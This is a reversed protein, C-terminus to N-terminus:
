RELNYRFKVTQQTKENETITKPITQTPTTRNQTNNSNTTRSKDMIDDETERFFGRTKKRPTSTTDPGATFRQQTSKTHSITM